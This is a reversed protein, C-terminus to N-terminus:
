SLIRLYACVLGSRSFVCCLHWGLGVMLECGAKGLGANSLVKVTLESESMARCCAEARSIGEGKFWPCTYFCPPQGAAVFQQSLRILIKLCPSFDGPCVDSPGVRWIRGQGDTSGADSAAHFLDGALMAFITVSMSSIMAARPEGSVKCLILLLQIM